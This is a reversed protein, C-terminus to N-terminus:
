TTRTSVVATAPNAPDPTDVQRTRGLADYHYSTRFMAHDVAGPDPRQLYQQPNQVWAVQGAAGYGTAAILWKATDTPSDTCSGVGAKSTRQTTARGNTYGTATYTFTEAVGWSPATVRTKTCAPRGGPTYTYDVYADVPAGNVSAPYDTRRTSTRKVSGNAYYDTSRVVEDATGPAVTETRVRGVKDFTVQRVSRNGAVANAPSTHRWARGAKDFDTGTTVDATIVSGAVTATVNGVEDYGYRTVVGTPDTVRDLRGLRGYVYTTPAAAGPSWDERLDGSRDFVKKATFTTAGDYPATTTEVRCGDGAAGCVAAPQHRAVATTTTVTTDPEPGPSSVVTPEGTPAYVYSTRAGTPDAVAKLSGDGYYEYSYATGTGQQAPDVRVSVQGFATYSYSTVAQEGSALQCNVRTAVVLGSVPDYDTCTRVGDGDQTWNVRQTAADVDFTTTRADATGSGVTVTSPVVNAGVYSYTTTEGAANTYSAPRVDVSSGPTVYTWSELGWGDTPGPPDFSGSGNRGPVAGTDPAPTVRQTVRRAEDYTFAQTAGARDTVQALRGGTGSGTFVRNTERQQATPDVVRVTEGDVSAEYVSADGSATNTVTVRRHQADWLYTVVDGDELVQRRVRGDVLYSNAVYSVPPVPPSYNVGGIVIEIVRGHDPDVAYSTVRRPDAVDVYPASASALTEAWSGGSGPGQYTYDVVRTEAPVTGTTAVRDVLGDSDVDTFVLGWSVGPSPGRNSTVSELVGGPSRAVTVSQGRGDTMAKVFGRRGPSPDDLRWFTWTEGGPLVVTPDGLAPISLVGDFTRPSVWGSGSSGYTVTRGDGLRLQRKEGSGGWVSLRQGFSNSWRGGVDGSGTALANFTRSFGLGYVSGPFAVDTESHHFNGTTLSVPDGGDAVNSPAGLQAAVFEAHEPTPGYSWVSVAADYGYPDNHNAPGDLWAVRSGSSDIVLERFCSGYKPVAVVRDVTANEQSWVVLRSDDSTPEPSGNGFCNDNRDFASRALRAGDASMVLGTLGRRDPDGTGQLQGDDLVQAWQVRNGADPEDFVQNPEGDGDWDRDWSFVHAVGPPAATGQTASSGFAVYRGGGSVGLGSPQDVTGPVIVRDPDGSGDLVRGRVEFRDSNPEPEAKV